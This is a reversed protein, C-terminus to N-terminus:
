SQHSIWKWVKKIDNIIVGKGVDRVLRINAGVVLSLLTLTTLVLLVSNSNAKDFPIIKLYFLAYRITWLLGIFSYFLKSWRTDEIIKFYFYLDEVMILFALLLNLGVVINILIIEVEM